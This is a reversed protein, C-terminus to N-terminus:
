VHRVVFTRRCAASAGSLPVHASSTRRAAEDADGREVAPPRSPREVISALRSRVSWACVRPEGSYLPLTVRAVSACKSTTARSQSALRRRMYAISTMPSRLTSAAPTSSLWPPSRSQSRSRAARQAARRAHGAFSLAYALKLAVELVVDRHRAAGADRPLQEEDPRSGRRRARSGRTGSGRRPRRARPAASTGPKSAPRAGRASRTRARRGRLWVRLADDRKYAPLAVTRTSASTPGRPRRRRAARLRVREQRVRHSFPESRRRSGPRETRRPPCPSARARPPRPAALAALRRLAARAAVLVVRLRGRAARVGRLRERAARM